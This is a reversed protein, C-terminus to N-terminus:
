ENLIGTAVVSTRNSESFIQLTMEDKGRALKVMRGPLGAPGSKVDDRVLWGLSKLKDTMYGSTSGVSSFTYGVVQRATKGPDSSVQDLGIVLGAPLPFALRPDLKVFESIKSTALYGESGSLGLRRFQVTSYFDATKRGIITGDGVSDIVIKKDKESGWISRYFNIVEEVPLSSKFYQIQIPRGNLAMNDSVWQVQSKPPAILDPWGIGGSGLVTVPALTLTLLIVLRQYNM